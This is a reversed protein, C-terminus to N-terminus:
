GAVPSLGDAFGLTETYATFSTATNMNVRIQFDSVRNGDQKVMPLADSALRNVDFLINFPNDNYSAVNYPLLLGNFQKWFNNEAKTQYFMIAQDVTLEVENITDSLLHIRKYADQKPLTSLYYDGTATIPVTYRKLKIIAGLPENVNDVIARGTLQFNSGLSSALDIEIQFTSVDRMGWSLANMGQPTMYFPNRFQVAFTNKSLMTDDNDNAIVSNVLGAGLPRVPSLGTDGSGNTDLDFVYSNLGREINGPLSTIFMDGDEFNYNRQINGNIKLRIADVLSSFNAAADNTATIFITHYRRDTPCDIVATNDAGIANASPLKIFRDM